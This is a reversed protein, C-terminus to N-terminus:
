PLALMAGPLGPAMGNRPNSRRGARPVHDVDVLRNLALRLVLARRAVLRACGDSWFFDPLNETRALPDEGGAGGTFDRMWPSSFRASRRLPAPAFFAVCSLGRGAVRSLDRM